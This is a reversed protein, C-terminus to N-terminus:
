LETGSSGMARGKLGACIQCDFGFAGVEETKWKGLRIDTQSLARGCTECRDVTPQGIGDPWVLPRELEALTEQPDDHNPTM